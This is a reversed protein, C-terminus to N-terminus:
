TRTQHHNMQTIPYTHQLLSLNRRAGEDQILKIRVMTVDMSSVELLLLAHAQSSCYICSRSNGRPIFPLITGSSSM